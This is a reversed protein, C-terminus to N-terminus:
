TEVSIKINMRIVIKLIISYTYSDNFICKTIDEAIEILEADNLPHRYICQARCSVVIKITRAM